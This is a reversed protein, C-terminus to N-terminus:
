QTVNELRRLALAITLGPLVRNGTIETGLVENIKKLRYQVTNVHVNLFQATKAGNMGADLIFTELTELLQRAKNEGMERKFPELLEIYNKKLYGGQNQLQICNSVMTLEYKTFVRKFPFVCEVYTWTENILRFAEGAGEIGDIGTCHFVRVEKNVKLKEYFSNCTSKGLSAKDKELAKGATIIGFTDEGEDITTIELLGKNEYETQLKNVQSLTLNKVNFVSLIKETEIDADERISYAVNVNGRILSKIFESKADRDPTFKWMAMAIEIIEALKTIEESSYNDENDVIFLFYTTQNITLVGWYTLVGNVDILQYAQSPRLERERGLRAADAITADKKTEIAFVPNFEESLLVVQFNNNIAAEKIATQFNAYKEFNLLHYITNNILRNDFNNGFLIKETVQKIMESYDEGDLFPMEFLPLGLEECIYVVSKDVAPIGKSNCFVVLGAIGARHLEAVTKRQMLVDAKMGSFSTLVLQNLSGNFKVAESATNSDMVSISTIRNEGNKVGALFKAKSFCDLSM